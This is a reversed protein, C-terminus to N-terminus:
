LHEDTQSHEIIEPSLTARNPRLTAIVDGSLTIFEIFYIFAMNQDNNCNLRVTEIQTALLCFM